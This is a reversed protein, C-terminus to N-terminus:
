GTVAIDVFQGTNSNIGKLQDAIVGGSGMLSILRDLKVNTEELKLEVPNSEGGGEATAEGGGGLVSGGLMGLAALTMLVPLAPLLALAGLAMIGMSAGLATFSAALQLLPGAIVALQTLPETMATIASSMIKSAMAIGLFLGTLVFLTPLMPTMYLLGAAMATFGIGMLGLAVSFVFLAPVVPGIALLNGTLLPILEVLITMGKAIAQIAIGLVLLAAAVILMAAAGALIAVAGVGSMMIAGIIGLTIVLGLLAVGAKAMDGWSVAAFEQLAKATVWLAAAIILLAAAGALAKKADFKEFMGGLPGGKGKKGKGKKRKKEKTADKTKDPTTTVDADVADKAKGTVKGKIDDVRGMIKEKAKGALGMGKQVLSNEKIKELNILKSLGLKQSLFGLMRGMSKIPGMLSKGFLLSWSVWAGVLGLIVNGVTGMEGFLGAIDGIIKLVLGLAGVVVILPTAFGVIVPWLKTVAAVINSWAMKLKQIISEKAEMANKEATSMNNIKEQNAIMRGMEDTSLGFAAAMSKRQVVNLKNWEAESGAQKLIEKQMGALDGEFALQRAKDTNINRGLLMSAEMQSNISDEFELLADASGAISDMSVGLKKAQIAAKFVNKGGDQAFQSFLESNQAVEEMVQAPAVGNAQALASVSKMQEIAAGKSGAGVAQMQVALDAATSGSIGFETQLMALSKVNEKTVEGFGGWHDAIGMAAGRVDESSVGLGTMEMSTTKIIGHLRASEGYALGTESHLEQAGAAFDWMMKVIVAMAAAWLLLPNALLMSTVQKFGSALGSVLEGGSSMINKLADDYNHASKPDMAKGLESGVTESFVSMKDDLEMVNSILPGFPMAKVFSSVKELPATISSAAAKATSDIEELLGVRKEDTKVLADLVDLQKLFRDHSRNDLEGAALKTQFDQRLAEAQQKRMALEESGANFGATGVKEAAAETAILGELAGGISDGIETYVGATAKAKDTGRETYKQARRHNDAITDTIDKVGVQNDLFDKSGDSMDSIKDAIKAQLKESESILKNTDKTERKRDSTKKQVDSVVTQAKRLELTQKKLEATTAIGSSKMGELEKRLKRAQAQAAKLEAADIGRQSRDGKGQKKPPM